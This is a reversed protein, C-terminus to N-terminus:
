VARRALGWYAALLPNALRVARPVEVAGPDIVPSLFSALARDPVRRLRQTEARHRLLWRAHRVCWAWGALKDRLWGEKAALVVMALEASVLVPALVVLLRASYSSLVFVLRNREM